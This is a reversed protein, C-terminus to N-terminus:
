GDFYAFVLLEVDVVCVNFDSYDVFQVGVEGSLFCFAVVPYDTDDVAKFETLMYDYDEFVEM